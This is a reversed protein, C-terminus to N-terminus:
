PMGRFKELAVGADHGFPMFIVTDHAVTWMRPAHGHAPASGKELVQVLSPYEPARPPDLDHLDDIIVIHGFRDHRNIADLEDLLTCSDDNGYPSGRYSHADLWFCAPERLAVVIPEFVQRSDGLM